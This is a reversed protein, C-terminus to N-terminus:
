PLLRKRATTAKVAVGFAIQLNCDTADGAAAFWVLGPILNLVFSLAAVRRKAPLRYFSVLSLIAGIGGIGMAALLCIVVAIGLNWDEEGGVLFHMVYYATAFLVTAVIGTAVTVRPLLSAM